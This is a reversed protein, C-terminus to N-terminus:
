SLSRPTQNSRSLNLELLRKLIEDDSLDAPWGYAAAVAGDLARHANQLWTPNENYLNTLTRKKLLAAAHGDVPLVREPYGPVVEPERRVLDAPNLWNERLQNLEKAAAAIAAAKPANAYNPAPLDPTLGDPFLTEFTSSPTYRPDNGVGLWSCM